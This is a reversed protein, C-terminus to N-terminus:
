RFLFRSPLKDAPNEGPFPSADDQRYQDRDAPNRFDPVDYQKSDNLVSRWGLIGVACIAASRHADMYPMRGALVDDVFNKVVWYDAGDHGCVLAKQLEATREPSYEARSAYSRNSDDLDWPNISLSVRDHTGRVSEVGGKECALRYWHAKPGYGCTGTVRFLAGTDMEVLMIGAVEGHERGRARNFNWGAALKGIVRKPMLDTMVMLPGISHALYYTKPIYSRWHDESPRYKDATAPSGPHCYEGEAYIVEGLVGSKFLRTMEMNAETFPCNEAMAFLTGTEEAAEVLEVCEKMTVAPLCECLVHVGAKMAQIAYAAHEHFYNALIIADIGSHLLEDFDACVKVNPACHPKAEEIRKPDNDCIAVVEAEDIIKAAEILSKGRWTGFVGLKLKREM